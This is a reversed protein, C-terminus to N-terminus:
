RTNARAAVMVTQFLVMSFFQYAIYAIRYQGPQVLEIYRSFIAAFTFCICLDSYTTAVPHSVFALPIGIGLSFMTLYAGIEFEENAQDGMKNHPPQELLPTAEEDSSVSPTYICDRNQAIIVTHM